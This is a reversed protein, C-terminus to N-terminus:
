GTEQLRALEGCDLWNEMELLRALEGDLSGQLRALERCDQWNAMELLRALEGGGGKGGTRWGTLRM